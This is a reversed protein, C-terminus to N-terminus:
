KRKMYQEYEAHNKITQAALYEETRAIDQKYENIKNLTNQIKRQKTAIPMTSDAQIQKIRNELTEIYGRWKEILKRKDQRAALVENEEALRKAEQKDFHDYGLDDSMTKEEVKYSRGSPVIDWANAPNGRREERVHENYERLQEDTMGDTVPKQMM